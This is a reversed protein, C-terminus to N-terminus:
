RLFVILLGPYACQHVGPELTERDVLVAARRANERFKEAV